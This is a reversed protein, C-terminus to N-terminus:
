SMHKRIIDSLKDAIERKSARELRIKEKETYIIIENEDSGFVGKTVDNAAIMNMGKRRLKDQAYEELNETEAAFGVTFLNTKDISSIIDVAKTLTIDLSDKKKIKESAPEDVTFDAPAAASVFLDADATAAKVAEYMESVTEVNIRRLNTSLSVPGSVITVDAGRRALAEAIAYGMKGSSRNSIYRVPDIAERTPGASVVAKIGAFDKPAFVREAEAFIEEPEAMRGRGEAGCALRGSEGEVITWGYSRVKEINAATAPHDYMATNMAPAAIIPCKAALLTTSLMDDAIGCACKAIINATAPAVIILDASAALSVHEIERVAREEFMKTTVKNRTLAGFSAPGVLEAAHKTMIVHVDAGAKVLLSTLACAKYAAISGTVGLVVKKGKM